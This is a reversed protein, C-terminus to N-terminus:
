CARSHCLDGALQVKQYFSRTLRVEMSMSPREGQWCQMKKIGCQKEEEYYRLVARASADPKVEEGDAGFVLLEDAQWILIDTGVGNRRDSLLRIQAASMSAVVEDALLYDKGDFHYKRWVM